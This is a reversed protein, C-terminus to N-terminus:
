ETVLEVGVEADAAFMLAMLAADTVDQPTWIPQITNQSM